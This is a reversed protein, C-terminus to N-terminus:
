EKHNRIKWVKLTEFFFSQSTLIKHKLSQKKLLNLIREKPTLSSIVLLIIGNRELHSKAQKLFKIIIEDGKKGGTTAKASEKDERVDKPLYPPNFAIVDFKDKKNINEFLNSKLADLNEKKLKDVAEKSIDAFVVKKAGSKLAAKGQLGSGAGMDLFRKGKSFKKVERELLFSDERPEYIM